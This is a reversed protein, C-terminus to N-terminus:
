EGADQKRRDFHDSVLMWFVGGVAAAVIMLWKM